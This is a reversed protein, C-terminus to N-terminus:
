QSPAPNLFAPHLALCQEHIYLLFEEACQSVCKFFYHFQLSHKMFLVMVKVLLWKAKETESM